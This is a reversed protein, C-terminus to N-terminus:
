GLVSYVVIGGIILVLAAAKRATLKEKFITVGFLTVYLYGTSDLISGMSLPVVRYAFVTLFTALVFILYATIVMPDLYEQMFSGHEKQSAKKLLVQSVASIFVGFLMFSAYLWLQKDM